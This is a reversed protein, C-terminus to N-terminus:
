SCNGASDCSAPYSPTIFGAEPSGSAVFDLPACGAVALSALVIGIAIVTRIPKRINNTM